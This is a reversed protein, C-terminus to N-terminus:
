INRKYEGPTVSTDISGTITGKTTDISLGKPLGGTTPSTETTNTVPTRTTSSTPNKYATITLNVTGSGQNTDGSGGYSWTNHTLDITFNNPLSQTSYTISTATYHNRGEGAEIYTQQPNGNACTQTYLHVRECTSM